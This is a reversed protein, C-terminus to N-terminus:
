DLPQVTERPNVVQATTLLHDTQVLHPLILLMRNIEIFVFSLNRKREVQQRCFLVKHIFFFTYNCCVLDLKLM